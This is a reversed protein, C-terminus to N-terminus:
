GPPSLVKSIKELMLNEDVPKLCYDKAGARIAILADDRNGLATMMIVPVHATKPNRSLRRCANFGNMEPMIVDMIVVDFDQANASELAELGNRATSVNFGEDTLRRGIKILDEPHDDVLLIRKVSENEQLSM